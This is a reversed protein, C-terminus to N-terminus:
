RLGVAAPRCVCSRTPPQYPIHARDPSVGRMDLLRNHYDVVLLGPLRTVDTLRM